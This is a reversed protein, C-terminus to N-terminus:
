WRIWVEGSLGAHEIRAEEPGYEREGDATEVVTRAGEPPYFVLTADALDRIGLSLEARRHGRSRTTCTVVGSEQRVFVRCEHRMVRSLPYLSAGEEIRTTTAHFVPAGDSFRLRVVGAPRAAYGSLFWARERRSFLMHAPGDADNEVRVTHGTRAFIENILVTSDFYDPRPAPVRPGREGLRTEHNNTGRIWVLPFERSAVVYPRPEGDAPRAYVLVDIATSGAGVATIAGGSGVPEHLITGLERGNSGVLALEGEVPGGSTVGLEAAVSEHLSAAPGYLIAPIGRRLWGLLLEADGATSAAGTPLLLTTLPVEGDQCRREFADATAVSSVPFGRNILGRVYWDCFLVEAQRHAGEGVIDHNYDFPYIWTVLGVDDPRDALATRIHSAVQLGTLADVEGLETDGTLINVVVPSVARGDDALMNCALPLFVDYPQGYFIDTWPNQRFWPDNAYYRFLYRAKPSGVIRSLYGVLELGYDSGLAGWPSNPPPLRVFDEGYLRRYDVGNVALDNAATFNTGRVEIPIDGCGERLDDWVTTFLDRRREREAPDFREGDFAPGVSDWPAPSFAFGNSLWVYDFGLDRCYSGIQRGLFRAFREGEPIGDPYAAFRGPDARLTAAADVMPFTWRGNDLAHCIIEDHRTYKFPSEAFEPGPDFTAGVTIPRGLLREGAARLSSVIAKLDAYRFPRAHEIYPRGYIQDGMEKRFAGRDINCFGIYRGWELEQDVDGSWELIDSGDAVWLMFSAEAGAEWLPRWATVVQEAREDFSVGDDLGFPKLSFEVAVRDIRDNNVRHM